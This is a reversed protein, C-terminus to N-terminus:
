ISGHQKFFNRGVKKLCEKWNGQRSNQFYHPFVGNRGRGEREVGHILQSVKNVPIFSILYNHLYKFSANVQVKQETLLENSKNQASWGFIYSKAISVRSRVIPSKM